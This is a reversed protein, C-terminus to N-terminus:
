RAAPDATFRSVDSICLMKCAHRDVNAYTRLVAGACTNNGVTTELFGVKTKATSQSPTTTKVGCVEKIFPFVTAPALFDQAKVVDMLVVATAPAGATCKDFDLRMQVAADKSSNTKSFGVAVLSCSSPGATLTGAGVPLMAKLEGNPSECTAGNSSIGALDSLQLNGIRTVPGTIAAPDICTM